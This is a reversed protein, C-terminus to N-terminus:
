DICSKGTDVWYTDLTNTTIFKNISWPNYLRIGNGARYGDYWEKVENLQEKKNYHQFFISIEDETFGFKDAYKDDHMSFVNLNNFGSFYGSKAIRPVGVIFAKEL